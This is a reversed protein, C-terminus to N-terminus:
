FKVNPNGYTGCKESVFVNIMSLSRFYTKLEHNTSHQMDHIIQLQEQKNKRLM